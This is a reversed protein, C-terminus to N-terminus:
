SQLLPSLFGTLLANVREPADAHVFHGAEPIVEVQRDPARASGPDALRVPLALDQAGWLILTPATVIRADFPRPSALGHRPLARYYALPATLAQPGDFTEAYHRLDDGTFTDAHVAAARLLWRVGAASRAGLLLEPVVPLWFLGIYASRLWQKPTRLAAAFVAPHPANAVALRAVVDPRAMAVLWAIVGGWDHGVLTARAAGCARVLGVVDAVLAEVRYAAVGAPRDSLGYGRLDPAVVRFGADVLAPIQHRWSYWFEPFGHLLVVLPGSPDGAEVTHLQVPGVSRRRHTASRDDSM